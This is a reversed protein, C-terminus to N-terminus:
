RWMFFPKVSHCYNSNLWLRILQYFGSRLGSLPLLSRIPFSQSRGARLNSPAGLGISVTWSRSCGIARRRTGRDGVPIM